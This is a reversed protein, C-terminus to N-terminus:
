QEGEMEYDLEGLEEFGTDECVGNKMGNLRDIEQYKLIEDKAEKLKSEHGQIFDKDTILNQEMLEKAALDTALGDKFCIKDGDKEGLSLTTESLYEEAKKYEMQLGKTKKGAIAYINLGVEV